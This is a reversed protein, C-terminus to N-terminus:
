GVQAPAAGPEIIRLAMAFPLRHAEPVLLPVARHGAALELLPQGEMRVFVGSDHTREEAEAVPAAARARLSHTPKPNRRRSPALPPPKLSSPPCAAAAAAPPLQPAPVPLARTGSRCACRRPPRLRPL